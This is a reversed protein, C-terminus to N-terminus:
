LFCLIVLLSHLSSSLVMKEQKPIVACHGTFYVGGLVVM